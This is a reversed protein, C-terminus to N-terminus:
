VALVSFITHLRWWMKEWLQSIRTPDAGVLMPKLEKDILSRIASGGLGITYTYETGMQGEDTEIQAMVVEFHTMNGHMADTMPHTLPLRFHKTELSAVKM